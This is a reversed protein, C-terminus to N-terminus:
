HDHSLGKRLQIYARRRLQDVNDVSEGLEAGIEKSSYGQDTLNVISRRREDLGSLARSLREAEAVAAPIDDAHRAAMRGLQADVKGYSDGDDTERTDQLSGGRRLDHRLDGRCWDRCTNFITQKLAGRFAAPDNLNGLMQVTRLWTDQAVDQIEDPPIRVTPYEPLRFRRIRTVIYDYSRTALERAAEDHRGGDERRRSAVVEGALEEESM